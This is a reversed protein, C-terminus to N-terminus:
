KLKVFESYDSESFTEGAENIAIDIYTGDGKKFSFIASAREGGASAKYTLEYISSTNKTEKLSLSGGVTKFNYVEKLSVGMYIVDNSTVKFIEMGLGEAGWSGQLWSPPSLKVKGSIVGDKKSCSSFSVVAICMVALLVSLRGTKKM